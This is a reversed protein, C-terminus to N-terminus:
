IKKSESRVYDYVTYENNSHMHHCGKLNNFFDPSFCALEEEKFSTPTLETIKALSFGKGYQNFGAKQRVRVPFTSNKDLIGGNRGITSDFVLPNQEHEIWNDSLPNDNYFALLTSGNDQQRNCLLWWRNEYEFVLSDVVSINSLIDKQYEWKLPYEICKYLRITNSEHTEPVMYLSNNYEFLFPFSMHFSEEIVSGLITYNKDDFIEIASIYGKKKIYCYDEVYCITRKNKTIVFPDAYFHNPPNKIQIGKRLSADKWSAKIFAVSWREDKKWLFKDLAFNFFLNGTKFM